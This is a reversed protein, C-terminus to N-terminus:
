MQGTTEFFPVRCCGGDGLGHSPFDAKGRGASPVPQGVVHVVDRDQGQPSFRLLCCLAYHRPRRRRRSTVVYHLIIKNQRPLSCLFLLIRGKQASSTLVTKSKADLSPPPALRQGTKLEPNEAHASRDRATPRLKIGSDPFTENKQSSIHQVNASYHLTKPSHNIAITATFISHITYIANIMVMLLLLHYGIISLLDTIKIIRRQLTIKCVFKNTSSDFFCQM